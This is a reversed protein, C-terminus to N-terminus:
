FREIKYSLSIAPQAANATSVNSYRVTITSAASVFTDVTVGASLSSNSTGLGWTVLDGVAALNETFTTEVSKTATVTLAAVSTKSGHMFLLPAGGAGVTLGSVFNGRTAVVAGASLTSASVTGSNASITIGGAATLLGGVTFAGDVTVSSTYHTTGESLYPTNMPM